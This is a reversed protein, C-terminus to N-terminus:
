HRSDGRRPWVREALRPSVTLTLGELALVDAPERPELPEDSLRPYREMVDHARAGARRGADGSRGNGRRPAM